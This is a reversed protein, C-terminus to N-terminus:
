YTHKHVYPNRVTKTWNQYKQCLTWINKRWNMYKKELENRYKLMSKWLEGSYVITYRGSSDTFPQNATESLDQISLRNHGLVVDGDEFVEQADYGRHKTDDLSEKITDITFLNGGVIGGGANAGITTNYGGTLSGASLSSKGLATNENFYKKLLDVSKSERGDLIDATVQRTLIEYLLGTNKIKSHKIKQSM